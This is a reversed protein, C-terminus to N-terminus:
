NQTREGADAAEGTTSPGAPWRPDTKRAEKLAACEDNFRELVGELWLKHAAAQRSEDIWVAIFTVVVIAAWVWTAPGMGILVATMSWGVFLVTIGRTVDSSRWIFAVTVSLLAILAIWGM